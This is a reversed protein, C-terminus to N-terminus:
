LCYYNHKNAFGNLLIRNWPIYQDLVRTGAISNIRLVINNILVLTIKRSICHSQLKSSPPRRSVPDWVTRSQNFNYYVNNYLIIIKRNFDYIRRLNSVFYDHVTIHHVVAVGYTDDSACETSKFCRHAARAPLSYNFFGNISLVQHYHFVDIIIIERKRVVEM